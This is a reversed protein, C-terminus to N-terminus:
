KSSIYCVGDDKTGYVYVSAVNDIAISTAQGAQLEFGSNANLGSAGIYINNSNGSLAQIILGNKVSQSSGLPEQTNTAALVLQGSVPTTGIDSSTTTGGGGGAVDIAYERGSQDILIVPVPNQKDNVVLVELEQIQKILEKIQRDPKYKKFWQPFKVDKTQVRITKKETKIQPPKIERLNAVRIERLPAPYEKELLDKLAYEL